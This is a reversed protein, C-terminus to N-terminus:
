QPARQGLLRAAELTWSNDPLTEALEVYLSAADDARNGHYQIEILRFMSEAYWYNEPYESRLTEYRARASQKEGGLDLSRAAWFLAEAKSGHNHRGEYARVFLAAAGLLDQQNFEEHARKYARDPGSWWLAYTLTGVVATFGLFRLPRAYVDAVEKRPNILAWRWSGWGLLLIGVITFLVGVRDGISRGYVLEVTNSQPYILMFSPETLYITEGGKSTWRPHYSMRVLHPRGPRDTEFIMRERTMEKVEVKGPVDSGTTAPLDQDEALFVHRERYPSELLFRKFSKRLWDERNSAVLPTEVLEVLQTQLETFEYTNLPGHSAILRFRPDSGYLEKMGQSRLILRDVYWENLHIVADDISRSTSPFRTLPSSPQSSVEAQLQYIFPGSIASEMYLGELAPRSGFMPLSELARTSGIDQNAPDHEFVLRPGNLPGANVQATALYHKWMPKNEYGSLNWRSWQDITEIRPAWWATMAVMIAIAVPVAGTKGWRQLWWGLSAGSAAALAWQAFPFFRLDALGIRGGVIFGFLGLMCIGLLFTVHKLWKRPSFFLMAFLAVWGAAMPWLTEPWAMRWGDLSTPTDNPITWPLNEILPILWFGILLFALAHVQLIIRLDHWLRKSALLFFFAGFGAALLSYGHSLAVLAELVGALLWWRGGNRLAVALVGWFLVALMLGWSYAFEGALMALVNGGWISTSTGLIFGAVGTASLLRAPVRWRFMAGTAYSAAPLLFVPLMSVLKFAVQQGVVYQLLGMLTFPLPFYFTFAPFGAYSEPLWGSIKGTPLWEMFVKAYFVQSAVDGGTSWSQQLWLTPSAHSVTWATLALLAAIGLWEEARPSLRIKTNQAV